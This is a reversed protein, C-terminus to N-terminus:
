LLLGHEGGEICGAQFEGEFAPELERTCQGYGVDVVATKTRRHQHILARELARPQAPGRNRVGAAVIRMKAGIVGGHEICAVQEFDVIAGHDVHV